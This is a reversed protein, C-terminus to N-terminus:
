FKMNVQPASGGGVRVNKAHQMIKVDFFTGCNSSYVGVFNLIELIDYQGGGGLEPCKQLAGRTLM